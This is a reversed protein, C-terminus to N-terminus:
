NTGIGFDYVLTGGMNGQYFIGLVGLLLLTIYVVQVARAPKVFYILRVGLIVAFLVALYIGVEEHTHLLELATKGIPLEEMSEHAVYGTVAAIVVSSSAILIPLFEVLDPERKRLLYLASVLLAILPSAIAFHVVPPHLKVEPPYTIKDVKSVSSSDREEIVVGGNHNANDEHVEGRHSFSIGSFFLLSTSLVLLFGIM